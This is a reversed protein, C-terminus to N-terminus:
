EEESVTEYAQWSTNGEIRVNLLDNPLLRILLREFIDILESSISYASFYRATDYLYFQKNLIGRTLGDKRPAYRDRPHVVYFRKYNKMPRNYANCMEAWLTNKTKGVYVVELESNYFAYIGATMKLLHQLKKQDPKSLNLFSRESKDDDSIHFFEVVPQISSVRDTLTAEAVRTTINLITRLTIQQGRIQAIRGQTYGIEEALASDTKIEYKEKLADIFKSGKM